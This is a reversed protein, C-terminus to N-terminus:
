VDEALHVGVLLQAATIAAIVVDDDDGVLRDVYTARRVWRHTGSYSNRPRV